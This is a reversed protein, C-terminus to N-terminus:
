HRGCQKLTAPYVDSGTDRGIRQERAVATHDRDPAGGIDSALCGAGLADIEAASEHSRTPEIRVHM